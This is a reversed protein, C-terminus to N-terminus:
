KLPEIIIKKNNRNCSKTHQIAMGLKQYDYHLQIYNKEQINNM